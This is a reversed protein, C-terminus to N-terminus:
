VKLKRVSIYENNKKEKPLLLVLIVSDTALLDITLKIMEM